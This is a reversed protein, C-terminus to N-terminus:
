LPPEYDWLSPVVFGLTLLTAVCGQTLDAEDEGHRLARFLAPCFRTGAGVGRAEEQPGEDFCGGVFSGLPLSHTITCDGM